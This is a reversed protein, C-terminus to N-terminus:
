APTQSEYFAQIAREPAFSDNVRKAALTEVIKERLDWLEDLPLSKFDNIEMVAGSAVLPRLKRLTPAVGTFRPLTNFRKPRGRGQYCATGQCIPYRSVGQVSALM